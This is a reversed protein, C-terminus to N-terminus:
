FNMYFSRIANKCQVNVHMVTSAEGCTNNVTCRYDGAQARNINTITLPNGAIVEDSTVNTWMLTPYPDGATVSCNMDVNGGETVNINEVQEM